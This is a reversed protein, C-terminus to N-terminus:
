NKKADKEAKWKQFEEWEARREEREKKLAEFTKRQEPTLQAQVAKDAKEQSAKLEEQMAKRDAASLKDLYRQTIEHKEQMATRKAERVAQRQEANLDLGGMGHRGHFSGKEGHHYGHGMDGDTPPAALAAAPLAAALLLMSLTKRM